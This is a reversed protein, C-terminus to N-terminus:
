KSYGWGRFLVIYNITEVWHFVCHENFHSDGLCIHISCIKSVVLKFFWNNKWCMYRQFWVHGLVEVQRSASECTKKQNESTRRPPAVRPPPRWGSSKEIQNPLCSKNVAWVAVEAVEGLGEDLLHSPISFKCCFGLVNPQFNAPSYKKKGNMAWCRRFLVFSTCFKRAKFFCSTRTRTSSTGLFINTMFIQALISFSNKEPFVSAFM